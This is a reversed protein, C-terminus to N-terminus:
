IKGKILLKKLINFNSLSKGTGTTHIIINSM